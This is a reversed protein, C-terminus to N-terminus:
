QKTITFTGNGSTSGGSGYTGSMTNLNSSYTCSFNYITLGGPQYTMTIAGNNNIFTGFSVQKQTGGGNKPVIEDIIIAGGTKFIVSFFYPDGGITQTGSWVGVLPYSVVDKKKCSFLTVTSVILLISLIKKM